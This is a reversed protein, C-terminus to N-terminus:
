IVPKCAGDFEYTCVLPEGDAGEREVCVFCCEVADYGQSMLVSAYFNAQMEHVARVEEETLDRDGTKYDVVLASTSGDMTALLDIAGEVYDGFRSPADVFFPVEARVRDFAMARERISSNAWLGLAAELRARARPSLRWRRCTAEIREASPFAGECEVMAQALEHFASGLGTAHDEDAVQPAGQQEAERVEPSSLSRARRRSAGPLSEGRALAERVVIDHASSYSYTGVRPRWSALLPSVLDEEVEFLDFEEDAGDGAADDVAGEGDPVAHGLCAIDDESAPLDGEIEPMTGATSASWVTGGEEKRSALEVVRVLGPEEGGFSFAHEGADIDPEFLSQAFSLSLSESLGKSKTHWIPCSV